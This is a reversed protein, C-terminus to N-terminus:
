PADLNVFSPPEFSPQEPPTVSYYPVKEGKVRTLVPGLEDHHEITYRTRKLNKAATGGGEAYLRKLDEGNLRHGPDHETTVPSVTCVCRLHIPKLEEVKYVRDSAVVCMGCTGGKSLEPHFVRRYGVVRADVDQVQKLTQQEALRQALMVNGDVLDGIRQEALGNATAHDAGQARNYRYTVVARNFLKEPAADAKMVTERSVPAGAPHYKVTVKPKAHVTVDDSGFHVGAGRVDDPITVTVNTDIGLARLQLLQSSTTATAVSRQASVILRGAQTTFDQVSRGDYPDTVDWLGTIMQATVVSMHSTIRAAGTVAQAVLATVDPKVKSAAYLSAALIAAQQLQDQTPATM